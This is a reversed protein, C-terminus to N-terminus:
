GALGNRANDHSPYLMVGMAILGFFTKGRIPWPLRGLDFCRATAPRHDLIPKREGRAM